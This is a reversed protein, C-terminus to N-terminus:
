SLSVGKFFANKWYDSNINQTQVNQGPMSCYIMEGNGIYIGGYDAKGSNDTSFFVLDGKKLEDFGIHTGMNSQEPTLRPCNIFGNERLVYYVFGSNDFGKEPSCQNYEFPIGLLSRATQVIQNGIDLYDSNPPPALTVVTTLETVQTIVTTQVAQSTGIVSIDASTQEKGTESGEQPKKSGSDTIKGDDIKNCGSIALILVAIFAIFGIAKKM